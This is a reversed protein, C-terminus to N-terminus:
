AGDVSQLKLAIKAPQHNLVHTSALLDMAEVSEVNITCWVTHNVMVDLVHLEMEEVFVVLM